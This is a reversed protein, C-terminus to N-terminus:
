FRKHIETIVFQSFIQTFFFILLWHFYFKRPYDRLLMPFRNSKPSDHIEWPSYISILNLSRLADNAYYIIGLSVLYTSKFVSNLFGQATLSASIVGSYGECLDEPFNLPRSLCFLRLFNLISDATKPKM